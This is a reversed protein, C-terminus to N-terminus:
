SWAEKDAILKRLLTKSLLWVGYGSQVSPRGGCQLSNRKAFPLVGPALVTYSSDINMVCDASDVATEALVRELGEATAILSSYGVIVTSDVAKIDAIVNQLSSPTDSSAECVDDIFVYRRIDPNRLAAGRVTHDKRLIEHSHIFSSNALNNELVPYHFLTNFGTVPNGIALFRTGDLVIRFERHISESNTIKKNKRRISQMVPYKYLDRFLATMLEQMEANGFYVLDPLLALCERQRSQDFQSLWNAVDVRALRGEWLSENLMKITRITKNESSHM